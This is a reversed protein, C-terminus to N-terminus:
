DANAPITFTKEITKSGKSQQDGTGYYSDFYVGGDVTGNHVPTLPIGGVYSDALCVGSSLIM